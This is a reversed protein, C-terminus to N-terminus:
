SFKKKQIPKSSMSKKLEEEVRKSKDRGVDRPTM